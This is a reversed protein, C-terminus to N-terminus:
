WKVPLTHGVFITKLWASNEVVPYYGFMHGVWILEVFYATVQISEGDMVGDVAFWAQLVDPFM